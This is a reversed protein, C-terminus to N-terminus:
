RGKPAFGQGVSDKDQPGQKIDEASNRASLSQTENKLTTDDNRRNRKPIEQLRIEEENNEVM